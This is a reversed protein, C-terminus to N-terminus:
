KEDKQERELIRRFTSRDIKLFRAAESQNNEARILADKVLGLEYQEVNERFSGEKPQSTKKAAVRIDTAEVFRRKEYNARYVGGEVVAQLERINGPWSYSLLKNVAEPSIGQVPIDENNTINSIIKHALDSIDEVRERLPPVEITFHAIRHYFDSRLKGKKLISSVSQNTAAILRFDSYIEKNSGLRRFVKEQLVNLLMVQAEQPLEDVEDLFFTGGNAEEILGKRKEVAGTFAGKEHGFIESTVLDNGGFQPQFRIFPASGSFTANNHIAQAIVGKGVGTEGVILVPQKNTSSYAVADIVPKMAPSKSFLGTVHEMNSATSSLEIFRRKLQSYQVADNILVALHDIAVPKSLFSAAGLQLARIGHEESDNGTLVLIRITPDINLLDEILKEGSEVGITPDISLDVVAVEPRFQTAISLAVQASQATDISLNAVKRKLRQVLARLSTEDDDVFLVRCSHKAKKISM